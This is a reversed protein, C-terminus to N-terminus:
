ADLVAGSESRLVKGAFVGVGDTQEGTYGFQSGASNFPNGFPDYSQQSTVQGQENTLLRNNGLYDTAYYQWENGNFEALGPIYSKGTSDALVDALGTPYVQGVKISNPAGVVVGDDDIAVSQGFADQVSGDRALFKVEESWMGGLRVFGYAAGAKNGMEKDGPAGILALDNGMVVSTGFQQQVAGDRPFLKVEERWNSTEGERRFIYAAGSKNGSVDAQPAGVILDNGNLNLSYGFLNHGAGDSAQLMAIQIWESSEGNATAKQKFIVVGGTDTGQSDEGPMGVVVYDNNIAVSAGFRDRVVGNSLTLKVEERWNATEGERKFIYAAGSHSGSNKDDPAGIIAYNGYIAVSSGFKDNKNGDSAVLKAQQTWTIEEIREFIYVAGTDNGKGPVGVIMSEGDTAVSYGFKDHSLGDSPTLRITKTWHGGQKIVIDTTGANLANPAGVMAGHKDVTLSLGFEEGKAEGQAIPELFMRRTQATSNALYPSISTIPAFTYRIQNTATVMYSDATSQTMSAWVGPWATFSGDGNNRFRLQSGHAMKLTVTPIKFDLKLDYNHTWGYGLSNTANKNMLSNYTREFVLPLGRTPISIDTMQYNYNGTLANIPGGWFSNQDCASLPCENPSLTQDFPLEEDGIVAPDDRWVAVVLDNYDNDTKDEWNLQWQDPKVQTIRCNIGTSSFKKHYTGDKNQAELQFILETSSNLAGIIGGYGVDKVVVLSQVSPATMSFEHSLASDYGITQWRILGSGQLVMQNVGTQRATMAQPTPTVFVTPADAEIKSRTNMSKAQATGLPLLMNSVMAMILLLNLGKYARLKYDSILNKM